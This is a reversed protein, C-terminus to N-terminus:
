RWVALADLLEVFKRAVFMTAGFGSALDAAILLGILLLLGFAIRDTM